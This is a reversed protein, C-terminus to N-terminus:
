SIVLFSIFKWRIDNLEVEFLALLPWIDLKSSCFEPNLIRNRM